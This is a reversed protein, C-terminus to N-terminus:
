FTSGPAPEYFILGAIVVAAVVDLATLPWSLKREKAQLIDDRYVTHSDKRVTKSNSRIQAKGTVHDHKVADVEMYVTQGQRLVLAYRKGPEIRYMLEEAPVGQIGGLPKYVHCSSLFLVSVAFVVYRGKVLFTASAKM